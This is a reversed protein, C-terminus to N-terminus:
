DTVSGAICDYIFEAIAYWHVIELAASLFGLIPEPMNDPVYDAFYNQIVRSLTTKNECNGALEIFDEMVEDTNRIYIILNETLHETAM